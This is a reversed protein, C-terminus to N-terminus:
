KALTWAEQWAWGMGPEYASALGCWGNRGHDARCEYTNGDRGQVKDGARYVKGLEWGANQGPQEEQTALHQISVVSPLSNQKGDNVTLRFQLNESQATKGLDFSAQVSDAQNLQVPTGAIQEWKYTLQAQEPDYSASGDLIVRGEKLEKPTATINAIPAQDVVEDSQAKHQINFEFPASDRAGDNVTLRFRLTQDQAPSNLSFSAKVQDSNMLTVAPGSVQEWKYTLASGEPDSSASGDLEVYDSAGTIVAPYRAHAIPAQNIVGGNGRDAADKMEAVYAIQDNIRMEQDNRGLTWVFFGGYNNAAQWEARAVNNARTEVWRIDGEGWQSNITQGMVVKSKDGVANAYNRMAVDYKFNHGADYAMVNYFDFVGKSQQLLNLVEGFHISGGSFSCDPTKNELCSVPDAGVHYTTLSLIKNSNAGLLAKVRQALKLLHDNEEPTLRARKEYDFDIGDLYVTGARQYRTMDCNGNWETTVCEGVMESPQMNKKYVPFGTNLLNVIGQAIKERNTESALDSWMYEFTEGGFALMMKTNPNAFKAQTWAIYTPAMHEPAYDSKLLEDSTSINGATDWRGFSLMFTDMKSQKLHEATFENSSWSTFYSIARQQDAAQAGQALLASGILLSLTLKKM